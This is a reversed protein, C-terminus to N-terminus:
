QERYNRVELFEPVEFVIGNSQYLSSHPKLKNNKYELHSDFGCVGCGLHPPKALMQRGSCLKNFASVLPNSGKSSKLARQNELSACYVQSQWIEQLPSPSQGLTMGEYLTDGIPNSGIFDQNQTLRTQWNCWSSKLVGVLFRVQIVVKSPHHEIWQVVPAYRRRYISSPNLLVFM